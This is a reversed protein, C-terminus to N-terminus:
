LFLIVYLHFIIIIVMIYQTQKTNNGNNSIIIIIIIIKIKTFNIHIIISCPKHNWSMSLLLVEGHEFVCQNQKKHNFFQGRENKREKAKM